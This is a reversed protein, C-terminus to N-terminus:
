RILSKMPRLIHVLNLMKQMYNAIKGPAWKMCTQVNHTEANGVGRPAGASRAERAESLVKPGEMTRLRSINAGMGALVEPDTVAEM